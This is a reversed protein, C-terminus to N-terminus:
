AIGLLEWLYVTFGTLFDNFDAKDGDVLQRILFLGSSVCAQSALSFLLGGILGLPAVISAVIALIIGYAIPAFSVVWSKSVSESSRRLASAYMWLTVQLIQM